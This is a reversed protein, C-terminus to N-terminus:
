EWKFTYIEISTGWISETKKTCNEIYGDEKFSYTYYFICNGDYKEIIKSPLHKSGIGILEPHAILLPSTSKLTDAKMIEAFWLPYHGMAMEGNYSVITSDPDFYSGEGYHYIMQTIKNNNWNYRYESDKGMYSAKYTSLQKSNNYTFYLTNKYQGNKKQIDKILGKELTYTAETTYDTREFIINGSWIYDYQHIYTSTGNIITVIASSLQGKEDYEFDITLGERIAKMQTLKKPPTVVEDKNEDEDDSCAIFNSGIMATLLVACIFRLTKM